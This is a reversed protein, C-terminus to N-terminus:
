LLGILMLRWFSVLPKYRSVEGDRGNEEANFRKERRPTYPCLRVKVLRGCWMTARGEGEQWMGEVVAM